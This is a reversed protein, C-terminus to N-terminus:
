QVREVTYGRAKLLAPLGDDGVMHLAGVNVLEVKAGIALERSLTEAWAENRRELLAQYLAPNQTKMEGVLGPGLRALDGELWAQELPEGRPRGRQPRTRAKLVDTLYQVEAPEPLDAFLRAQDELTEFFKVPKAGARAARTLTVDAGAETQAGQALMPQMSLMLAAAWPRLHDIRPLDAQRRLVEVERPQLKQSLRRAPDVGYHAVLNSLAMPDAGAVDTEFWVTQAKAYVQDYLPTRWRAAAPSLAHLTGFLYIQAHDSKVVWLAPAAGAAGAAGLGGFLIAAWLVFGPVIRAAVMRFIRM